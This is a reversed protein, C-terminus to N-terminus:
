RTVKANTKSRKTPRIDKDIDRDVAMANSRLDQYRFQLVNKSM